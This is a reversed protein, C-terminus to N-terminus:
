RFGQSGRIQAVRGTVLSRVTVAGAERGAIFGTTMSPELAGCDLRVGHGDFSWGLGRRCQGDAERLAFGTM